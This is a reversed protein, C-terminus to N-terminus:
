WDSGEAPSLADMWGASHHRYPHAPVWSPQPSTSPHAPLSRPQLSSRPSLQSQTPFSRPSLQGRGLLPVNPTSPQPKHQDPSTLKSSSKDQSAWHHTKTETCSWPIEPRPGVFPLGWLWDCSAFEESDCESMSRWRKTQLKNTAGESWFVLHIVRNERQLACGWYVRDFKIRYMTLSIDAGDIIYM